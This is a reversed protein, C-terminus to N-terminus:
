AKKDNTATMKAVVYDKVRGQSVALRAASRERVFQRFHPFQCDPSYSQVDFGWYKAEDEFPYPEGKHNSLQSFVYLCRLRTKTPTLPLIEYWLMRSRRVGKPHSILEDQLIEQGVFITRDGSEFAGTLFHMVEGDSSVLTHLKTQDKGDETIEDTRETHFNSTPSMLRGIIEKYMTLLTSAPVNIDFQRRHIYDIGGNATPIIDLDHLEHVEAMSPFQYLQFARYANHYMQETIWRKGLQRTKANVFLTTNRWTTTTTSPTQKISWHSAVWRELDRIVRRYESVQHRLSEREKTEVEADEQLALSVERWPLACRVDNDPLRQQRALMLQRVQTELQEQRDLLYAMEMKFEERYLKMMNRMYARRRAKKDNDAM